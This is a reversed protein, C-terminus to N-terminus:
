LGYKGSREKEKIIAYYIINNSIKKNTLKELDLNDYKKLIFKYYVVVFTTICLWDPSIKCFTDPNIKSM